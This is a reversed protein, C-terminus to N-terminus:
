SNEAPTNKEPKGLPPGRSDAGLGRAGVGQHREIGIRYIPAVM